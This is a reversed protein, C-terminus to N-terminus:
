SVVEEGQEVEDGDTYKLESLMTPCPQEDLIEACFYIIQKRGIEMAARPGMAYMFDSRDDQSPLEMASASLNAEEKIKLLYDMEVFKVLLADVDPTNAIGDGRPGGQSAVKVPTLGVGGSSDRHGKKSGSIPPDQPINEDVGHLLRYLASGTIWRTGNKMDGKCYVFALILMLLGKEVAADVHVSHIAKSHAGSEDDQVNNIVYYRDKFKAPFNKDEEMYRPVRRLEFGWVDRLRAAAQAFAASGVRENKYPEGLVLKLTKLRDITEGSLAKFLLLRSLDTVIRDQTASNLSSLNMEERPKPPLTPQSQEPAQQSFQVQSLPQDDGYDDEYEEIMSKAKIDDDNSNSRRSKKPHSRLSSQTNSRVPEIEEEEEEEIAAAAYRRKSRSSRTSRTM